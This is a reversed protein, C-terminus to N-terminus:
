RGEVQALAAEAQPLWFTMAMTRYMEIATSLERRAPEHQSLTNYLIGLGRHCHAQLPRMGLEEALALAQQYHAEAQDVIHSVVPHRDRMAVLAEDQTSDIPLGLTQLAHLIQKPSDPDITPAMGPLYGNKGALEAQFTQDLVMALERQRAQASEALQRWRETDFPVGAYTMWAITPLAEMELAMVVSLDLLELQAALARRLELLVLVDHAAYRLQTESLFWRSWDSTQETKDLRRNLMREVVTQLTFYGRAKLHQGGDLVQAAIMTDWWGSAEIGAALLFQHEFAAHHALKAISPEALFPGVLSVPMRTADMLVAVPEGSPREWALSLLRITGRHPDLAREPPMTELDVAVVSQDQVERLWPEVASAQTLYHWGTGPRETAVGVGQEGLMTKVLNQALATM